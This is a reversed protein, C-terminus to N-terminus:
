SAASGSETASARRAIAVNRAAPASQEANGPARGPTPWSGHHGRRRNSPTARHEAQRQGPVTIGGAGIARRQGTSQRANALFRSAGPAYPTRSHRRERGDHATRSAHRYLRTPEQAGAHAIPVTRCSPHHYPRVFTRGARANNESFRLRLSLARCLATLVASPAQSRLSTKVARRHRASCDCATKRRLAGSLFTFAVPLPHHM